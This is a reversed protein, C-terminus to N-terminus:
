KTPKVKDGKPMVSFLEARPHRNSCEFVARDRVMNGYRDARRNPNELLTMNVADLVIAADDMASSIQEIVDDITYGDGVIRRQYIHAGVFVVEAAIPDLDQVFRGANIAGLQELTLVGIPVIHVKKGDRIRELNTRLSDGANVYLPMKLEPPGLLESASKAKSCLVMLM